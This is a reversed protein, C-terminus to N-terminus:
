FGCLANSGRWSHRADLNAIRVLDTSGFLERRAALTLALEQRTLEAFRVIQDRLQLTFQLPSTRDDVLLTIDDRPRRALM